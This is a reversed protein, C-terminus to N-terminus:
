QSRTLQSAKTLDINRFKIVLEFNGMVLSLGTVLYMFTPMTILCVVYMNTPYDFMVDSFLIVRVTIVILASCYFTLISNSQLRGLKYAHMMNYCGFIDLFVFFVMLIYYAIEGFTSDDDKSSSTDGALLSHMMLKLYDENM